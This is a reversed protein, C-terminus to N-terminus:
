IINNFIFSPIELSNRITENGINNKRKSALFQRIFVFKLLNIIAMLYYNKLFFNKNSFCCEPLYKKFYNEDFYFLVLLSLNNSFVTM